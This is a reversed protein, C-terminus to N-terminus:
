LATRDRDSGSSLEQGLLLRVGIRTGPVTQGQDRNRDCDSRPGQCLRAGTEIGTM